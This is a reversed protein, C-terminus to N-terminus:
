FLKLCLFIFEALPVTPSLFIDPMVFTLTPYLQRLQATLPCLILVHEETQVSGCECLRNERPLRSWRGTEIRLNHASLRLRTFLTRQFEPVNNDAYMRHLTLDPNMSVYTLFKSRQSQVILNKIDNIGQQIFSSPTNLANLYSAFPTSADRHLCIIYMLPDDDIPDRHMIKLFYKRQYEKVVYKLPAYDSEALCLANATTSRVHLLSKIASMYMTSLKDTSANLWSECSYLISSFFAADMVKKKVTFPADRNKSFFNILKTLQKSKNKCHADIASSTKGDSMFHAGLYVYSNTHAVRLKGHAENIVLPLRDPDDGNIVFFQTKLENVVFDKDTCFQVLINLKRLCNERSSAFICTDDMLLLLHLQGLFDDDPCTTKMVRILENVYMTFLFCSTPAGQRVGLVFRMLSSGMVGYTVRYMACLASLMVSGCGLSHLAQMLKERPIRDYAKSFDVFVVYLKKKMAVTYMIILRLTMIHDTCSRGPLAGAQERDPTFWHMLRNCLVYDYVKGIGNMISIGRYNNCDDRPGKKYISLLKALAFSDPCLGHFVNNLLTALWMIWQPSLHKFLGPAVGDPGCGSQVKMQRRIVHDVELPTIDDDLIPIYMDSSINYEIMDVNHPNLLSEFHTRFEDDSPTESSMSNWNVFGNWGVAKWLLRKDSSTIIRHWRKQNENFVEVPRPHTKALSYMNQSLCEVAATIDDTDPPTEADIALSFADTAVASYPLARRCIPKANRNIDTALEGLHSSQRELNNLTRNTSGPTELLVSVPAHDSPLHLNTNFSLDRVHPILASSAIVLDLESIWRNRKRFTLTGPLRAHPTNLNNMVLANINRCLDIVAQGNSKPRTVPDPLDSYSWSPRDRPLLQRIRDGCRANLDGILFIEKKKDKVRCQLAAFDERSHYPSDPPPLYVGVLAVGELGKLEMWCQNRTALDVKLLDPVIANRILVAVGGARCEEQQYAHYGPVSVIANSRLEFIFIIDHKLIWNLVNPNM